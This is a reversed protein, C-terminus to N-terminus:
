LDVTQVGGLPHRQFTRAMTTAQAQAVTTTLTSKSGKVYMMGAATQKGVQILSNKRSYTATVLKNFAGQDNKSAAEHIKKTIDDWFEHRAARMEAQSDRCATVYLTWAEKKADAPEYPLKEWAKRRNQEIRLVSILHEEKMAFWGKSREEIEIPPILEHCVENALDILDTYLTHVTKAPDLIQPVRRDVEAAVQAALSPNTRLVRFNLKPKAASPGPDSHRRNRTPHTYTPLNPTIPVRTHLITPLHDTGMTDVPYDTVIRCTDILNDEWLHKSVAAHDITHLYEPTGRVHWSGCPNPFHSNALILNENICFLRLLTGDPERLEPSTIGPGVIPYIGDSEPLARGVRANYDGMIITNARFESPVKDLAKYLADYFKLIRIEDMYAPNGTRCPSYRSVICGRACHTYYCCDVRAPFFAPSGHRRDFPHLLRQSTASPEGDTEPVGPPTICDDMPYSPSSDEGQRYMDIGRVNLGINRMDQRLADQLMTIPELRRIVGIRLRPEMVNVPEHQTTDM